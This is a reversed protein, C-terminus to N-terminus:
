ICVSCCHPDESLLRKALREYEHKSFKLYLKNTRSRRREDADESFSVGSFTVGGPVYRFPRATGSVLVVDRSEHPRTIRQGTKSGPRYHWSVWGFPWPASGRIAGARPVCKVCKQTVLLSLSRPWQPAHDPIACRFIRFVASM